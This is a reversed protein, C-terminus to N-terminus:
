IKVVQDYFTVSGESDTVRFHVWIETVPNRTDAFVATISASSLAGELFGTSVTQLLVPLRERALDWLRPDSTSVLLLDSM